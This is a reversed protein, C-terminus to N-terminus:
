WGGGALTYLTPLYSESTPFPLVTSLCLPNCYSPEAFIKALPHSSSPPAQCLETGAQEYIFSTHYIYYMRKWNMIDKWIKSICHRGTTIITGNVALDTSYTVSGATNTARCTYEGSHIYDVSTLILISTRTGIMTTSLSPGSSIVDGKLSWSITIPLDGHSVVCTLQAFAGSDVM